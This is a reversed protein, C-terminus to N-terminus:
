RKYKKVKTYTPPADMPGYRSPSAMKYMFAYLVSMIGGILVIYIITLVLVALIGSRGLLSQYVQTLVPSLRLWDPTQPAIMLERPVLGQDRFFPLSLEAAAYSMVPILVLM